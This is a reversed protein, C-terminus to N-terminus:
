SYIGHEIRDLLAEVESHGASTDLFSLPTEGGLAQNPTLLWHVAKNRSGLTDTAKMLASAARVVADSESPSLREGAERWVDPAHRGILNTWHQEDFTRQFAEDLWTLTTSPLGKRMAKALELNSHAAEGLVAEGGLLEGLASSM